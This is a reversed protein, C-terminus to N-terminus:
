SRSFELLRTAKSWWITMMIMWITNPHLFSFFHFFFYLFFIFFFFSCFIFLFKHSASPHLRPDCPRLARLPHLVFDLLGSPGFAPGFPRWSSTPGRLPGLSRTVFMIPSCGRLAIKSVIVVANLSCGWLTIRSVHLRQSM